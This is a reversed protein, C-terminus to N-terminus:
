LENRMVMITGNHQVKSIISKRILNNIITQEREPFAGLPRPENISALLQKEENTKYTNKILENIKM